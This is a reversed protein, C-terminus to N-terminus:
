INQLEVEKSLLKSSKKKHYIIHREISREKLNISVEERNRPTIEQTQKRLNILDQHTLERWQRNSKTGLAEVEKRIAEIEHEDYVYAQKERHYLHDSIVSKIMMTAFVQELLILVQTFSTVVLFSNVLFDYQDIDQPLLKTGNAKVLFNINLFCTVIILLYKYIYRSLMGVGVAKSMFSRGCISFVLLLLLTTIASAIIPFVLAGFNLFIIFHKWDNFPTQEAGMKNILGYIKIFPHELRYRELIFYFCPFSITYMYYANELINFFSNFRAKSVQNVALKEKFKILNSGKQLGTYNTFHHGDLDISKTDSNGSTNLNGKKKSPQTPLQLKKVGSFIKQENEPNAELDFQVYKM